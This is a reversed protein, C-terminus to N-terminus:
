LPTNLIGDLMWRTFMEKGYETFLKTSNRGFVNLDDESIKIWIVNKLRHKKSLLFCSEEADVIAVSSLM